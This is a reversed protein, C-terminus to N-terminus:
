VPLGCFREIYEMVAKDRLSDHLWLLAAPGDEERIFRAGFLAYEHSYRFQM